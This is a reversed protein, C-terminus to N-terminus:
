IINQVVPATELVVIRWARDYVIYDYSGVRSVSYTIIFDISYVGKVGAAQSCTWSEVRNGEM